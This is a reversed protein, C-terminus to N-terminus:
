CNREESFIFAYSCQFEIQKLRAPAWQSPKKRSSWARWGTFEDAHIFQDLGGGFGEFSFKEVSHGDHGTSESEASNGFM